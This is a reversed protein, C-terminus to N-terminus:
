SLSGGEIPLLIMQQGNAEMVKTLYQFMDAIAEGDDDGDYGGMGVMGDTGRCLMVIAKVDEANSLGLMADALAGLPGSPQGSRTTEQDTM